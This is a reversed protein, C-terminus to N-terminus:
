NADGRIQLKFQDTFVTPESQLTTRALWIPVNAGETNIRLVNGAVWGGGWGLPNVVMYPTGTAPNIPAFEATVSGTGVLGSYEGYLNYSTAGSFLFYWREQIAGKNTLTIPYLVDNFTAAAASGILADSWVNTWTQQDFLLSVRAQMDGVVLASSVFSTDAPFAHTVPKMLTVQGTIQVDTVLSMDEIRHECVLPQTYASLVLPNAMTITGADLDASYLATDVAVNAADFVKAYALRIRGMDYTAGAVAPNALTTRQTNHIVAMNDKRFVPVRGDQPLRVTELGLIDADLQLYSILIANYRISEAKVLMPVWIKGDIDIDAPNYWGAAKLSDPLSADLVKHGFFVSAVGSQWDVHGEIFESTINGNNDANDTINDGNRTVASIQFQGVALPAGPTRFFVSGVGADGPLTAIAKLDLTNDGNIWDTLTVIGTQYDINGAVTGADSYLSYARYVVGQRDIYDTGAFNFWVSNSVVEEDRNTTIDIQLQAAYVTEIFPATSATDLQYHATIVTGGALLEQVTTTSYITTWIPRIFGPPTESYVGYLKSIDINDTTDFTVAGTAYNVSSGTVNSITGGGDDNVQKQKFIPPKTITVGMSFDDDQPVQVQYDLILSGTKVPTQSLTLAVVGGADGTATLVDIIATSQQYEITFATGSVPIENPYFILEGTAHVLKGTANGLIIGAGDAAASLPVVSGWTITLSGPLVPVNALVTRIAPLRLPNPTRNSHYNFPSVWSFLISSDVDPLAGLTVLVTGTAYNVTGSGTGAVGVLVGNGNDSLSYWKGLAKYSVSVSLAGPAPILTQVYNYGRNNISIPIAFSGGNNYFAAAPTAVVSVAASWAANKTIRIHGDAYSVTGGYSGAAGSGLVIAGNGNDKYGIGDITIACSTPLIGRGTYIDDAYDPAVTGSLSGSVTLSEAAGSQRFAGKTAAAIADLVPTEATASPVLAAYPSGVNAVVDDIAMAQALKKVGYYRAADAVSSGLLKTPSAVESYRSMEAGYFDTSMANSLELVLVDKFYDGSGDNFGGTERSIIKEVRFFQTAVVYGATDQKLAIVDGIEPTKALSPTALNLAKTMSYASLIRQGAVHPGYVIWQLTTGLVSYSEIRSRADSREDTWSATSFLTIVVNPDDPPDTLIIHCGLYTDTNDSEVAAFAKRLSVRGYTRDLQSIDNFLNNMEGDVVLNGTIQGGGNSFDTLRESQLLRLDTESIM